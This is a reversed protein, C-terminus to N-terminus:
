LNGDGEPISDAFIDDGVSDDVMYPFDKKNNKQLIFLVILIIGVFIVLLPWWRAIFQAFSLGNVSFILFFTGLFMLMLAPFFYITRIRRLKYLGAPVLALGSAIVWTPWLSKFTLPIIQTDCLLSIIGTIVFFIGLFVSLSNGTFAFAFFLFLCGAGIMIVDRAFFVKNGDVFTRVLFFLGVFLMVIGFALMINARVTNKTQPIKLFTHKKESVLLEKFPLTKGSYGNKVSYM